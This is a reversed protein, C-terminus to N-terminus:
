TVYHRNSDNMLKRGFHFFHKFTELSSVSIGSTYEGNDDVADSQQQSLGSRANVGQRAAKSSPV